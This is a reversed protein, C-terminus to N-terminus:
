TGMCKREVAVKIHRYRPESVGLRRAMERGSFPIKSRLNDYVKWEQETFQGATNGHAVPLDPKPKPKAKARAKRKGAKKEAKLRRKHAAIGDLHDENFREDWAQQRAWQQIQWTKHDSSSARGPRDKIRKLMAGKIIRYVFTSFKAERTPDYLPALAVLVHLGYDRLDAYLADNFTKPGKCHKVALTDVVWMADGVLKKQEDTLSAIDVVL